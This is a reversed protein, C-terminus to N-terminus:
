WSINKTIKLTADRAEQAVEPAEDSMAYSLIPLAKDSGINGLAEVCVYRVKRSHSTRVERTLIDIAKDARLKGLENAMLAKENIDTDKALGNWRSILGDVADWLSIKGIAKISELRIIQLEDSLGKVIVEKAREDGLEGLAWIIKAKVLKDNEKEYFAILQPVASKDGINAIAEVAKEKTTPYLTKQYIDIFNALFVKNNITRLVNVAEAQSEKSGNTATYILKNSVVGRYTPSSAKYLSILEDFSADHMETKTLQAIDLDIDREFDVAAM